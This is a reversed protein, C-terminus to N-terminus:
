PIDLFEINHLNMMESFSKPYYDYKTSSENYRCYETGDTFFSYFEFEKDERPFFKGKCLMRYTIGDYKRDALCIVEHGDDLLERLRGYDRSFAYDDSM